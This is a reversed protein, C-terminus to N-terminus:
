KAAGVVPTAEKKAKACEKKAKGEKKGKCVKKTKDCTKGAKVVPTVQPTATAQAFVLGTSGLFAVTMLTAFLKRM